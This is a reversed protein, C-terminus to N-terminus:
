KRRQRAKLTGQQQDFSSFLTTPLQQCRQITTQGDQYLGMLRTVKSSLVRLTKCNFPFACNNAARWLLQHDSLTKSLIWYTYRNVINSTYIRCYQAIGKSEGGTKHIRTDTFFQWSGNLYPTEDRQQEFTIPHFFLLALRTSNTLKGEYLINLSINM